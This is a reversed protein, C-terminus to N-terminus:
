DPDYLWINQYIIIFDVSSIQYLPIRLNTEHCTKHKILNFLSM